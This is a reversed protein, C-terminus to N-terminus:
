RDDWRAIFREQAGADRAALCRNVADYVRWLERDAELPNRPPCIWYGGFAYENLFHESPANRAIWECAGAPVRGAAIGGRASRVTAFAAAGALSLVALRFAFRVSAKLSSDTAGSKRLRPAEVCASM